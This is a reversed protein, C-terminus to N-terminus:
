EDSDGGRLWLKVMQAAVEPNNQIFQRLAKRLELSKETNIDEINAGTDPTEGPEVSEGSIIVSDEPLLENEEDLAMQAELAAREAEEKERQRKRRGRLVLILLILLILLGAGAILLYPLLDQTILLFSGPGIETPEEYFPAILM